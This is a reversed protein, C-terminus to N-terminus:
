KKRGNLADRMATLTESLEIKESDNGRFVRDISELNEPELYFLFASLIRAQDGSMEVSYFTETITTIKM